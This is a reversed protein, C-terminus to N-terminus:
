SASEKDAYLNLGAIMADGFMKATADGEPENGCQGIQVCAYVRAGSEARGAIWFGYDTGSGGLQRPPNGDYSWILKTM